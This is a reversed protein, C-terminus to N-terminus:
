WLFRRIARTEPMQLMTVNINKQIKAAVFRTNGFMDEITQAKYGHAVFLDCTETGYARNIELYVYPIQKDAAFLALAKYFLLPNNDPVFLAL